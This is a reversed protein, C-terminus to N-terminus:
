PLDADLWARLAGPAHARLLEVTAPYDVIGADSGLGTAVQAASAMALWSAEEDAVRAAARHHVRRLLRRRLRDHRHGRGSPRCTSAATPPSWRPAAAGRSVLVAETGLALVRRAAAAHDATGTLNALQDENPLFYQVYPLVPALRDWTEPGGPALLDMTTLVGHERAFQLM